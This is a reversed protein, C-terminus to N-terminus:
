LVLYLIQILNQVYPRVVDSLSFMWYLPFLLYCGTHITSFLVCAELKAGDEAESLMMVQWRSSLRGMGVHIFLGLYYSPSM